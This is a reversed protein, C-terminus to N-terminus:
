SGTPPAACSAGEKIKSKLFIHAYNLNKNEIIKILLEAALYGVEQHPFSVTTLAPLGEQAKFTGDVGMISVDAPVQWGAATIATMAKLAIHDNLAFIATIDPQQELLEIVTQEVSPGIAVYESNVRKHLRTMTEQYAGFRWTFWDYNRDIERALFAIQRHGLGVLYDLAMQAQRSHDQSVSSLPLESWSRGLVVTPINETLIRQVLHSRRRLGPGMLILGDLFPEQKMLLQHDLSREEGDRYGTIMTLSANRGGVYRQIGQRYALYLATLGPDIDEEEAVCHVLAIVRERPSSRADRQAPLQYGLEQAASHVAQRIEPSAGPRNNLVLSVTSKAVGARRAVDDM